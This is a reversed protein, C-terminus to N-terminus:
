KMLVGDPVVALEKDIVLDSHIHVPVSLTARHRFFFRIVADLGVDFSLVADELLKALVEHLLSFFLGVLVFEFQGFSHLLQFRQVSIISSCIVEVLIEFHRLVAARNYTWAEVAWRWWHQGVLRWGIWAVWLAVWLSIWAIGLAVSTVWSIWRRWRLLLTRHEVGV